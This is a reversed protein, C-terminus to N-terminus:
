RFFRGHAHVCYCGCCSCAAGKVASGMSVTLGQHASVIASSTKQRSAAGQRNRQADQMMTVVATAQESLLNLQRTADASLNPAVSESCQIACRKLMEVADAVRGAQLVPLTGVFVGHQCVPLAVDATMVAAVAWCM